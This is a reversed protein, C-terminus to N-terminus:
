RSDLAPRRMEFAEQILALWHDKNSLAPRSIPTEAWARSELKSSPSKM